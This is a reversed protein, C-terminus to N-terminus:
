SIKHHSRQEIIVAKIVAKWFKITTERVKTERTNGVTTYARTKTNCREFKHPM